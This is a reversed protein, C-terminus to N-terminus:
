TTVLKTRRLETTGVPRSAVIIMANPLYQKNLLKTVVRAPNRYEDLGDLIFCAGDGYSCELMETVVKVHEKNYFLELIDSLSIYKKCSGLMRLSVLFVLKAERLIDPKTAWDRTLKHTLTTKGSGPRGELLVLAKHEHNGFLRKYEVKDKEKLIDDIDGRISYDYKKKINRKEHILALEIYTSTGVPPWSDRPIDNLLSYRDLLCKKEPCYIISVKVEKTQEKDDCRIECTYKGYIGQCAKRIFLIDICVGSYILNNSLHQGEKTWQYTASESHPIQVGLLISKGDSVEIERSQYDMKTVSVEDISTIESYKGRFKENLKDALANMGVLDSQLAKKVIKLQAHKVKQHWSTLIKYLRISNSTGLRCEEIISGCLHLAIGLEEWKHTCDALVETLVPIHSSQIIICSDCVVQHGVLSVGCKALENRLILSLNASFDFQALAHTFTVFVNKKREEQHQDCFIHGCVLRLLYRAQLRSNLRDHDLTCFEQYESNSQIQHQLLMNM